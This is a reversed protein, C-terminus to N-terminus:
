SKRWSYSVQIWDAYWEQNKKKCLLVTSSIHETYINLLIVSLTLLQIDRIPYSMFFIEMNAARQPPFRRHNGWLPGDICLMSPKKTKPRFLMSAPSTLCMSTWTVDYAMHRRMLEDGGSCFPRWKPLRCNWICKRSHFRYFESEFKVSIHEWSDLQCYVLMPESLPKDGFLRCAMIQVLASGSRQRWVADSPWLSNIFSSVLSTSPGAITLPVLESYWIAM